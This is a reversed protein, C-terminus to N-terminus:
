KFKKQVGFYEDNLKGEGDFDIMGHFTALQKDIQVHLKLVGPSPKTQTMILTDGKIAWLGSAKRVVSDQLNRYESRYTGDQIFHTRIPKIQLRAEWNSSDAEVITVSGTKANRIKIKLYQNRWEGTLQQALKGNPPVPTQTFAVLAVLCLLSFLGISIKDKKM